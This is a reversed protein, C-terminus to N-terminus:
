KQKKSGSKRKRKRIGARRPPSGNEDSHRRKARRLSSFGPSSTKGKDIVTGKKVPHVAKEKDSEEVCPEGRVTNEKQHTDVSALCVASGRSAAVAEKKKPRARKKKGPANTTGIKENNPSQQASNSGNTSPPINDDEINSSTSAKSQDKKWKRRKMAKLKRKANAKKKEANHVSEQNDAKANRSSSNKKAQEATSVKEAATANLKAPKEVLAKPVSQHIQEHSESSQLSHESSQNEDRQAEQITEFRAVAKRHGKSAVHDTVEVDNLFRKGPCLQCERWEAYKVDPDVSDPLSDNDSPSYHDSTPQENLSHSHSSDTDSASATYLRSSSNNSNHLRMDALQSDNKLLNQLARSAPKSGLQASDDSSADSFDSQEDGGDAYLVNWKLRKIM